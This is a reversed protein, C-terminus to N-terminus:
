RGVMESSPKSVLIRLGCFMTSISCRRSARGPSRRRRSPPPSPPRAPRAPRCRGRGPGCRPRRRGSKRSPSRGATAPKTTAVSYSRMVRAQSSGARSRRGSRASRRRWRPTGARPRRSCRRCCRWRRWAALGVPEHDEVLQHAGRGPEVGARARELLGSFRARISCKTSSTRETRSARLRTISSTLTGASRSSSTTAM